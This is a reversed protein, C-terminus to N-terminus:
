HILRKIFSFHACLDDRLPPPTYAQGRYVPLDARGAIATLKLANAYTKDVTQNGAVATVGIVRISPDNCLLLLAIADDHGPDCDMFVPTVEAM